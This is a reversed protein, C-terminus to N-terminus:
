QQVGKPQDAKSKGNWATDNIVYGDDSQSVVHGAMRDAAQEFLYACRRCEDETFRLFYREPDDRHAGHLWFFFNAHKYGHRKMEAATPARLEPEAEHTPLFKDPQIKKKM